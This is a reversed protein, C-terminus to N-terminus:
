ATALARLWALVADPDALRHPAITDADGVKIAIDDPGLRAFAEEDTVDDGIFVTTRVGLETALENLATGKDASRAFMELVNSGAKSTAGDVQRAREELASLARRGRDPAARRVHLVVSAPKREVWAGDGAEGAADLALADLEALRGAEEADLPTMAQDRTEMGHSGIVHVDPGFGFQSLGEVSRGSVVALRVADLAAAASVAEGIGPLLAADDAHDVLPALVGDVDLGLLLPRPLAAVLDALAAPDDYESV